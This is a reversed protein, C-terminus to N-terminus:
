LNKIKRFQADSISLTINRGRGQENSELLRIILNEDNRIVFDKAKIIQIKNEKYKITENFVVYEKEIIDSQSLTKKNSKKPVLELIIDDVVFDSGVMNQINYQMIINKRYSYLKVFEFRMGEAKIGDIFNPASQEMYNQIKQNETLTDKKKQIPVTTVVKISDKKVEAVKEVVKTITTTATTNISTNSITNTNNQIVKNELPKAISIKEREIIKDSEKIEAKVNSINDTNTSAVTNSVTTQTKNAIAATAVELNKYTSINGGDLLLVQKKLNTKTYKINVITTQLDTKIFLTTEEFVKDTKLILLTENNLEKQQVNIKSIGIDYTILKGKTILVYSPKTENMEIYNEQSFTITLSFTFLLFSLTFKKM